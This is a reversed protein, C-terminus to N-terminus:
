GAAGPLQAAAARDLFWIANGRRALQAPWRHPDRGPGFVSALIAAKGAGHSVVVVSGAAEIIRPTLSLRPVHPEVHTPAPVAAVWADMDDLLRSGPFASLVHGDPGVGLLVVDFAPVGSEATPLGAARLEADYAAVAGDLGTGDALAQTMRPAHVNAVPMRVGPEAGSEVEAADAGSGSLGARASASLLVQDLPLVNSLPHDRPVYRDDGWWVHVRDWPVEDRHPASALVQYIGVPTSGGTTAWDARGRRDVAAVLARAITHAAADSCAAPDELVEIRPEDNM